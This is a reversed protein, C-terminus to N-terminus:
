VTEDIFNVDIKINGNDDTCIKSYLLVIHLLINNCEYKVIQRM